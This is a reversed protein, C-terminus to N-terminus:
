FVVGLSALSSNKTAVTEEALSPTAVFVHFTPCLRHLLKDALLCDRAGEATSCPMSCDIPPRLIIVANITLLLLLSLM